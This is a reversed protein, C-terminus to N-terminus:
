YFTINNKFTLLLYIFGIWISFHFYWYLNFAYKAYVRKYYNEDICIKKKEAINTAIAITFDSFFPNTEFIFQIIFAYLLCQLEFFNFVLSACFLVVTVAFGSFLYIYRKFNVKTWEIAVFAHPYPKLSLGVKKIELKLIKAALIHGLEHLVLLSIVLFLVFLVKM